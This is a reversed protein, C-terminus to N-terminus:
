RTAREYITWFTNGMIIAMVGVLLADLSLFAVQLTLEAGVVQYNLWYHLVMFPAISVITILTMWNLQGKIAQRSRALTMTEDGLFKGLWFLSLHQTPTMIVLLIILPVFPLVEEPVSLPSAAVFEVLPPGAIILFAMLAATFGLLTLLSMFEQRGFLLSNREAGQFWFRSIWLIVYLLSIIKVVGFALRLQSAGAAAMGDASAFMEIQFEVLHQLGEALVPLLFILPAAIAVTSVRQYVRLIDSIM